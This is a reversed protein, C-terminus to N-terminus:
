NFQRKFEKAARSLARNPRESSDLAALFQDRDRTTLKIIQHQKLVENSARLLSTVVFDTVTQHSAVAAQEITEKARQNLRVDLRAERPGSKKKVRETTPM